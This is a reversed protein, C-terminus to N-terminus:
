GGSPTEDPSPHESPTSPLVEIDGPRFKVTSGASKRKLNVCIEQTTCTVKVPIVLTAEPGDKAVQRAGVSCPELDGPRWVVGKCRRAVDFSDCASQDLKFADGHRLWPSELTVTTGDPLSEGLWNVEACQLAHDQQPSGGIPANAISVSPKEQRPRTSEPETPEQSPEGTTETSSATTTTPTSPSPEPQTTPTDSCAAVASLLAIVAIVRWASM